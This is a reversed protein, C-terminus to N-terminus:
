VAASPWQRMTGLGRIRAEKQLDDRFKPHAVRILAQARESLSKGRLEAVGYETVLMDMDTRATTVVSGPELSAVISSLEGNKATSHTAVFSRGGEAM